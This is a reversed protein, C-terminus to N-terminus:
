GEERISLIKAVIMGHLRDRVKRTEDVTLLGQKELMAISHSDVDYGNFRHAPVDMQAEVQQSLKPSDANFRLLLKTVDKM